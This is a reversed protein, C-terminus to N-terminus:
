LSLSTVVLKAAVFSSRKRAASQQHLLASPLLPGNGTAIAIDPDNHHPMPRAVPVAMPRSAAEATWPNAYNKILAMTDKASYFTTPKLAGAAASFAKGGARSIHMGM